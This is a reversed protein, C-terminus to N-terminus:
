KSTIPIKAAPTPEVVVTQTGSDDRLVLVLVLVLIAVLIVAAGGLYWPPVNTWFGPAESEADPAADDPPLSDSM